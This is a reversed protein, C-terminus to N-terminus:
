SGRTVQHLESLIIKNTEIIGVETFVLSRQKCMKKVFPTLLKLKNRPTSPFLHHEIQYNLGMYLFDHFWSKTINRSTMVQQEMFSIRVNKALQPMGKHNPAFVNLLYLGILPNVFLFLFIAKSLPFFIFPAIFWIFFGALYLLFEWFIDKGFEDKYYKLAKFRMTYVVFSGLPFYFFAQYRRIFKILGKSKKYRDDTFTFPIDIDPDEDEQNPHAHHMNHKTKWNSYGFTILGAFFHGFLDNMHTSRFIARHGADHILGGIQVSFFAFFLGWIILSSFTTGLFLYYGSLFFGFLIFISALTYYGYSRELIGKKVVAERLQSYAKTGDIISLKQFSKLSSNQIKKVM